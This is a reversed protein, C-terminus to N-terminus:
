DGEIMAFLLLIEEDLIDEVVKRRPKLMEKFKGGAGGWSTIIESVVEVGTQFINNQFINKQFMVVWGGAM